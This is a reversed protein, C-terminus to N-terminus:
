NFRFSDAELDELAASAAGAVYGNYSDIEGLLGRKAGDCVSDFRKQEADSEVDTELGSSVKESFYDRRNHIRQTLQVAKKAIFLAAEAVEVRRADGAAKIEELTGSLFEFSDRLDGLARGRVEPYAERLAQLQACRMTVDRVSLTEPHLTHADVDSVCGLGGEASPESMRKGLEAEISHQEQAAHGSEGDVTHTDTVDGDSDVDRSHTSRDKARQAETVEAEGFPVVLPIGVSEFVAPDFYGHTILVEAPERVRRGLTLSDGNAIDSAAVVEIYREGDVTTMGQKVAVNPEGVYPMVDLLPVFVRHLGEEQSRTMVVNYAWELMPTTAKCLVARVFAAMKVKDNPSAAGSAKFENIMNEEEESRTLCLTETITRIKSIEGRLNTAVTAARPAYCYKSEEASAFLGSTQALHALAPFSGIIPHQYKDGKAASALVAIVLHYISGLQVDADAPPLPLLSAAQSFEDETPERGENKHTEQHLTTFAQIRERNLLPAVVVKSLETGPTPKESAMAAKAIPILEDILGVGFVTRVPIRVVSEGKKIDRKAYVHHGAYQPRRQTNTEIRLNKAIDKNTAPFRKFVNLIPQISGVLSRGEASQAPNTSSAKPDIFRSAVSALINDREANAGDEQASGKGSSLSTNRKGFPASIDDNVQSKPSRQNNNNTGDAPSKSVSLLVSGVVFLLLLAATIGLIKMLQPVNSDEGAAKKKNVPNPGKM